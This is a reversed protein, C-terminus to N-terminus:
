RMALLVVAWLAASVAAAALLRSTLTMRLISWPTPQVPHPSDVGHVHMHVPKPSAFPHSHPPHGDVAFRGFPPQLLHKNCYLM